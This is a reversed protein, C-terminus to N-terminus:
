ADEDLAEIFEMDELIDLNEIAEYDRFLDLHSAIAVELANSGSTGGPRITVLLIVFLFAALSTGLLIRPRTIWALVNGISKTKEQELRNEFQQLLNATPSTAPLANVQAITKEHESLQKRCHECGTLHSKVKARISPELEDDLYAVLENQIEECKEMRM